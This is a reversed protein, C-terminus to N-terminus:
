MRWNTRHNGAPYYDFCDDDDHLYDEDKINYNVDPNESEDSEDFFVRMDDDVLAYGINSDKYAKRIIRDFEDLDDNENSETCAEVAYLLSDVIQSESVRKLGKAKSAKSYNATALQIIKEQDELSDVDPALEALTKLFEEKLNPM